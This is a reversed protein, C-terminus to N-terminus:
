HQWIDRMFLFSLLNLYWQLLFNLVDNSMIWLKPRFALHTVNMLKSAARHEKAQRVNPTIIALPHRGVIKYEV